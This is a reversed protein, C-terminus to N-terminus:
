QGGDDATSPWHAWPRAGQVNAVSEIRVGHDSIWIAHTGSRWLDFRDIVGWPPRCTRRVPVLSVVLASSACDEALVAADSVIGVAPGENGLPRYICAQWDCGISGDATAEGPAPWPPTAAQGAAALWSEGTFTERRYTSLVLEGARDRAAVLGADSSVLVDPAQATSWLAVAVLIPVSGWWRLRTRWLCLWVLGFGFLVPLWTPPSAVRVVAGPRTATWDAVALVADIGWGMPILGVAELGFPMLALGLLGFPMVWFATIPVAIMNAGLGYVAWRNFQALVFAATAVNAILSTVALGVVYVWLRRGWSRGARWTPWRERIAEYVAILAVVAAFSMQFSPGLVSAPAILMVVMAAVAVLRMSFPDRKIMLAVLVIATMIFARQTPVTAGTIGLYCFTGALAFVAAWSKIPYGLALREVAAAVTRFGVFLVSAVLGLHLGSIALLHALGSQRIADLTAEPVASRQGTLLAAAVAGTPPELVAMIRGTAAQRLGGIWARWGGGGAAAGDLRLPGVAYGIGGIRDFYARRAFDYGGPWTPAAPPRLVALISARQGPEPPDGHTRVTIRVKAPTEAPAVRSIEVDALVIRTGSTQVEVTEITGTVLRPGVETELVPASALHTALQSAAFGLGVLALGVAAMRLADTRLFLAAAAGVALCGVGSWAWPEFALAFYGVIGALVAIPSWLIWRDREGALSGGLRFRLRRLVHMM